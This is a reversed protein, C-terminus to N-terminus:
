SPLGDGSGGGLAEGVAALLTDTEFPKHLCRAGLARAEDCALHAASATLLIVPTPDEEAKLWRILALGDLGPMQLDTLVLEWGGLKLRHLAGLGNGVAEPEYGSGQLVDLLITRMGPNDDVVLIRHRRKSV